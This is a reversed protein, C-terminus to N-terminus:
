YIAWEGVQRFGFSSYLRLAADGLEPVTLVDCRRGGASRMRELSAALLTRGLGRSRHEERVLAEYIAYRDEGLETM